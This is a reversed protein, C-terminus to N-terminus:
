RLEHCRGGRLTIYPALHRTLSQRARHLRAKVVNMEVSTVAAIEEYTLEEFERLVIVERQLPPLANVAANVEVALEEDLLAALPDTEYESRCEFGHSIQEVEEESVRGYRRLYYLIHNRAVACLFTLLSGREPCYREPHEILVLFAEQTVDEAIAQVGVM